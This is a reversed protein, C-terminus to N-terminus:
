QTGAGTEDKSDAEESSTGGFLSKAPNGAAGSSDISFPKGPTRTPNASGFGFGSSGTLHTMPSKGSSFAPGFIGVGAPPAAGAAPAATSTLGAFGAKPAPPAGATLSTNPPPMSPPPPKTPVSISIDESLGSTLKKAKAAVLKRKLPLSHAAEAGTVTERASEVTGGADSRLRSVAELGAEGGIRIKKQSSQQSSEDVDEFEEGISNSGPLHKGGHKSRKMGLLKERLSAEVEPVIGQTSEENQSRVNQGSDAGAVAGVDMDAEATVLAAPSATSTIRGAARLEVIQAAAANLRGELSVINSALVQAAEKSESLQIDLEDKASKVSSLEESLKVKEGESGKKFERFKDRLLGSNKDLTEYTTRLSSLESNKSQLQDKLGTIENRCAELATGSEEKALDLEEQLQKFAVPDVDGYKTLLIQLRQQWRVVDDQLNQVTADAVSKDSELMSLQMKLGFITSEASKLQAQVGDVHLRLARNDDNLQSISDQLLRLTSYNNLLKDFEEPDICVGAQSKLDNRLEKRSLALSQQTATLTANLHGISGELSIVKAELMDRELQTMHLVERLESLQRACEDESEFLPEGVFSSAGGTSEAAFSRQLLFRDVQAGLSMVQSSLLENAAKVSQMRMVQGEMEKQLENMKIDQGDSLVKVKTTLELNQALQHDLQAQTMVMQSASMEAKLEADTRLKHEADVALNLREVELKREELLVEYQATIANYSEAEKKLVSIAAEYDEAAKRHKIEALQAGEVASQLEARVIQHSVQLRTHEAQLQEHHLRSSTLEDTTSQQLKSYVIQLQSYNSEARLGIAKYQAVHSDAVALQSKLDEIKALATELADSPDTPKSPDFHKGAEEAAKCAAIELELGRCKEQCVFLSATERALSEQVISLEASKATDAHTALRLETELTSIKKQLQYETHVRARSEDDYKKQWSRLDEQLQKNQETRVELGHELTQVSAGLAFSLRRDDQCDELQRRLECEEAQVDRLNVESRQLAEKLSKLELEMTAVHIRDAEHFAKLQLNARELDSQYLAQTKMRENAALLEEEYQRSYRKELEVTKKSQELNYVANEFASTQEILTKRTSAESSEKEDLRAKLAVINMNAEKLDHELTQIKSAQAPSKSTRSTDPFALSSRGTDAQDALSRYSDRQRILEKVMAETKSRAEKMEALEQRTSEASPDMLTDISNALLKEQM